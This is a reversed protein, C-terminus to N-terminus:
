FLCVLLEFVEGSTCLAPFTPLSAAPTPPFSQFGLAWGGRSSIKGLLLPAAASEWCLVALASLGPTQRSGPSCVQPQALVALLCLQSVPWHSESM